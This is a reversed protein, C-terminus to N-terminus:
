DSIYLVSSQLTPKRPSTLPPRGTRANGGGQSKWRSGDFLYFQTLSGWWLHPSAHARYPSKNSSCGARIRWDIWNIRIGHEVLKGFQPLFVPATEDRVAEKVEKGFVQYRYKPVLVVHYKCDWVVHSLTKKSM